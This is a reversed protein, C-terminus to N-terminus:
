RGMIINVRRNKARGAETANDAVPETQGKGSAILRTAPFASAYHAQLWERVANARAESLAQNSDQTGANDTHGVIQLSLGSSVIASDAIQTLLAAAQPSLQASGTKFVIAWSKESVKQVIAAANYIPAEAAAMVPTKQALDKLFTTDIIDDAAPFTPVLTPYLKSVIRGFTNYVIKYTNTSGPTVGFLNLNDALNSVSSGGLEVNLGQKDPKTEGNFYKAWYAGNQEKYIRASAEGAFTVASSYCKVQDSGKFVGDLFNDVTQRNDRAWKKITIIAAPMQSAYDKTSAITVLGGRQEAVIVDAPTWTAVGNINVTSKQGTRIGNIVVDRTEPKNAVYLNSSAIFDPANVFNIANPDYTKEDPNIPINNDGAWKAVINWDGDRIVCAVLAGKAKQPNSRWEPLGMFKDEGHSFGTAGIVEATYDPGLKSLEGNLGALFTASGDGMIIVMQTGEATDPSKKYDTAFKILKQQMVNGDDCRDVMLNVGNSAMISGKTPMIGGNAYALGFQANWAMVDINVMKGPVKIPSSSPISSAPVTNKANAPATPLDVSGLALSKFTSRKFISDRNVIVYGVGAVVGLFFVGKVLKVFKPNFRSM